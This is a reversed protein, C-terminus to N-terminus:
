PTYVRVTHTYDVVTAAASAYAYFQVTHTGPSLGTLQYTWATTDCFETGFAGSYPSQDLPGGDVSVEVYYYTGSTASCYQLNQDM